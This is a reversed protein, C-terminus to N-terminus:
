FFFSKQVKTTKISEEKTSESKTDFKENEKLGNPIKNCCLNRKFNKNIKERKDKLRNFLYKEIM